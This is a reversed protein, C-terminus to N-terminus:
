KNNAISLHNVIKTINIDNMCKFHGKPCQDYGIKSCPRCSLGKVEVIEGENVGKKYYPYMGFAPITNGWISLIRKQFAAAIHMMGTDHSIVQKSQSILSASQNLNCRGCANFVFNGAEQAIKEGIQQEDPGGLLVIPQQIAKCIAIIKEIPLRKTAHAAGIAFAIYPEASNFNTEKQFFDKLNVHDEKPVFYDLGEGDNVVGFSKVTELYRDVIHVDPLRNIKTNVMLWKQLNIKNFAYRKVGLKYALENSRLNKHLDILYDYAETKLTSLIENVDKEITYVKDVYPNNALISHYSKKTVFHIEARTQLKLCRIVPTTLVIDGISSFRIILIKKDALSNLPM